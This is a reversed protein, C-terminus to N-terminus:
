SLFGGKDNLDDPSSSFLFIINIVPLGSKYCFYEMGLNANSM